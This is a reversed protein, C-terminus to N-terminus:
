ATTRPAHHACHHRAMPFHFGNGGTCAGMGDPPNIPDPQFRTCSSCTPAPQLQVVVPRREIAALDAALQQDHTPRHAHM